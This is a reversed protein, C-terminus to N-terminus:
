RCETLVWLVQPAGIKKASLTGVELETSSVLLFLSGSLSVSLCVGSQSTTRGLAELLHGQRTIHRAYGCVLLSM